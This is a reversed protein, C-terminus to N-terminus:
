KDMVTEMRFVGREPLFVIVLGKVKEEASYSHPSEGNKFLPFNGIRPFLCLARQSPRLKQDIPDSM